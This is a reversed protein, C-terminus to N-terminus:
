SHQHSENECSAKDEKRFVGKVKQWISKKTQIVIVEGMFVDDEEEELYVDGVNLPLVSQSIEIEKLKYGIFSLVVDFKEKTFEDPILLTFEGDINTTTSIKFGKILVSAAPITEKNNDIIRGKITKNLSYTYELPIAEFNEAVTKETQPKSTIQAEAPIALGLLGLFGFAWLGPFSVKRIPVEQVVLQGPNFIGCTKGSNKQIFDLVESNSMGRFDLVEKQCSNCFGGKGTPIFNSPNESCPNPIRIQPM